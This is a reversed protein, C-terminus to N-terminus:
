TWRHRGRMVRNAHRAARTDPPRQVNKETTPDIFRGDMDFLCSYLLAAYADLLHGVVRNVAKAGKTWEGKVQKYEWEMYRRDKPGLEPSESHTMILETTLFHELKDDTFRREHVHSGRISSISAFGERALERAKKAADSVAMARPGKRYLRELTTAYAVLRERLIYLENLYAHIVFLLRRGRPIGSKAFPSRRIYIEVDKLMEVTRSIEMFGYFVPRLLQDPGGNEKAVRSAATQKILFLDIMASVKPAAFEVIGKGFDEWTAM